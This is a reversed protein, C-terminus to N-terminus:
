AHETRALIDLKVEDDLSNYYASFGSVRVVLDSYEDPHEMADELVKRSM